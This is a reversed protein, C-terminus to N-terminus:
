GAKEVRVTKPFEKTLERLTRDIQCYKPVIIVLKRGSEIAKFALMKIQYTARITSVNKVLVINAFTESDARAGRPIQHRTYRFRM